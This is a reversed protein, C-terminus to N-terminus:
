QRGMEFHFMVLLKQRVIGISEQKVPIEDNPKYNPVRCHIQFGGGNLCKYDICVQFKAWTTVWKM